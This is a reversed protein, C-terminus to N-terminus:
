LIPSCTTAGLPRCRREQNEHKKGARLHVKTTRCVIIVNPSEVLFAGGLLGRRNWANLRPRVTFGRVVAGAKASSEGSV